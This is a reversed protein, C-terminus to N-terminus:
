PLMQDPVKYKMGLTPSTEYMHYICNHTYWKTISVFGGTLPLTM